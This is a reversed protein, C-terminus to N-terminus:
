MAKPLEQAAWNAAQNEFWEAFEAQSLMAKLVDPNSSQHAVNGACEGTACGLASEVDEHHEDILQEWIEPLKEKMDEEQVLATYIESPNLQEDFICWVRLKRANEPAALRAEIDKEEGTQWHKGDFCDHEKHAKHAKKKESLGVSLNNRSNNNNM